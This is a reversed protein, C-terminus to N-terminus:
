KPHFTRREWHFSCALPPGSSADAAHFRVWRLCIRPRVFRLCARRRNGKRAVVRWERGAVSWPGSFKKRGARCTKALERMCPLPAPYKRGRKVEPGSLPPESTGHRGPSLSADHVNSDPTIRRRNGARNREAGYTRCETASPGTAERADAGRTRREDTPFASGPTGSGKEDRKARAKQRAEPGMRSAQMFASPTRAGM